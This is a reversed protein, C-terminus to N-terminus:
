VTKETQYHIESNIRFADVDSDYVTKGITIGVIDKNSKMLIDMVTEAMSYVAAPSLELPIFCNVSIKISNIEKKNGDQDSTYYFSNEAASLSFYTKRIPVPLNRSEYARIASCSDNLLESGTITEIFSDILLKASQM